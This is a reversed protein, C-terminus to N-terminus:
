RATGCSLTSRDRRPPASARSARLRPRRAHLRLARRRSAHRRRRRAPRPLARGARAAPKLHREANRALRRGAADLTTKERICTLVDFLPKGQPGTHRVGGGAVLKLGRARAADIRRRNEREEEPDLHRQVEAYLRGTGLHRALLVLEEPTGESLAVLGHRYEALEGPAVRCVEKGAKAHGLTLLRCLNRYGRRDECLLAVRGGQEVDLEAGVLPRVGERRASAHFRPAGYLGGVDAIGFTAHGKEAAAAALDEPLATARLFSFASRSHLETYDCSIDSGRSIIIRSEPLGGEGFPVLTPRPAPTEVLDDRPFPSLEVEPARRADIAAQIPCDQHEIERRAHKRRDERSPRKM